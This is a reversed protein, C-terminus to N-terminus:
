SGLASLVFATIAFASLTIVLGIVSYMITNKASSLKGPDGQSTMYKVGGVVIMVVTLVGVIGYVANLVNGVTKIMDGEGAGKDTPCILEKNPGTYNDCAEDGRYSSGSAFTPAAVAVSILLAALVALIKKKM